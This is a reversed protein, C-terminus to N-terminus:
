VASFTPFDISVANALTSFILASLMLMITIKM